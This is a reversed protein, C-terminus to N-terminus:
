TAGANGYLLVEVADPNLKGREYATTGLQFGFSGVSMAFSGAGDAELSQGGHQQVRSLWNALVANPVKVGGYKALDSLTIPDTGGAGRGAFAFSFFPNEPMGLGAPNWNVANFGRALATYNDGLALSAASASVLQASAHSALAVAAFGGLALRTIATHFRNM